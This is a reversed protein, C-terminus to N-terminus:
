GDSTGGRPRDELVDEVRSVSARWHAVWEDLATRGAATPSLVHRTPGSAGPEAAHTVLGRARLRTVLPYVTGYGTEIGFDALRRVVGYAHMPERGLIALVCMDLAGRLLLSEREVVGPGTAMRFM